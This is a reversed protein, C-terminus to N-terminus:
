TRIHGRGVEDWFIKQPHKGAVTELEYMQLDM